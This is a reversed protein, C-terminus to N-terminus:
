LLDLREDTSLRIPVHGLKEFLLLKSIHKMNYFGVKRVWDNLMGNGYMRIRYERFSRNFAAEYAAKFGLRCLSERVFDALVKNNTFFEIRPECYVRKRNKKFSLCFDADALGRLFHPVLDGKIWSPVKKLRNKNGVPLGHKVKDRAATKSNLIVILTNDKKRIYTVPRRRYLRNLIYPLIEAYLM